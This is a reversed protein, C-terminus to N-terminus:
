TAALREARERQRKDAEDDQFLHGYVDYTIKISSHGMEVQVEKPNAGDRILRSAHYHRLAHFNYRPELIPRGDKDRGKQDAVGAAIQVPKWARNYINALNEPKGGSTSFVLGDGGKSRVKWERLLQGLSTPIIIERRAAESKLVTSVTGNEDAKQTVSIVGRKFDVSSWPLGRLESARMGTRIATTILARWRPWPNKREPSTDPVTAKEDLQALIANIDSVKPATVKRSADRVLGIQVAKGVHIKSTSLISKLSTLVKKALPRSLPIDLLYDAFNQVRDENFQSLKTRGLRPAIYTDVHYHYQRLTSAEAPPRNKRGKEVGKIWKEAAEKLTLSTSEVVHAGRKVEGITNALWADADKKKKLDQSPTQEGSGHLQRGM